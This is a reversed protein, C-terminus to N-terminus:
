FINVNEGKRLNVINSNDHVLRQLGGAATAASLVLRGCLTLVHTHPVVTALDLMQLDDLVRVTAAAGDSGILQQFHALKDMSWVWAM